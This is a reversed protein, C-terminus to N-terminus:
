HYISQEWYPSIVGQLRTSGPAIYRQRTLTLSQITDPQKEAFSKGCKPYQRTKRLCFVIGWVGRNKRFFKM